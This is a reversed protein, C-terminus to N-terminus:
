MSLSIRTMQVWLLRLSRLMRFLRIPRLLRLLRKEGFFKGLKMNGDVRDGFSRDQERLTLYIM